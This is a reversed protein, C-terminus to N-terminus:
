ENIGGVAERLPGVVAAPTPRLLFGRYGDDEVDAMQKRFVPLTDTSLLFTRKRGEINTGFYWVSAGTDVWQSPANSNIHEVWADTAEKTAEIRDVGHARMHAFLRQLWTVQVEIYRPLNGGVSQPGGVFILNPFGATQLGLYTRPGDAWAEKLTGGNTGRIDIRNFSGVVADFGTAFVIMDFQYKREATELGDEVYRLIPEELLSILEVNDRNYAEYYDTEGPPRKQAYGHDRPILLEATRPDSVRERIKDAIFKAVIENATPDTMVDAFNGHSLTSGSREWLRELIANVDDADHDHISGPLNSHMFGTKTNSVLEHLEDYSARIEEMREPSIPKNNLPTAWNPTRQFVTLHQAEAAIVPILQVGSAGTGIVAVRKRNFEAPETPWTATHYWEGRYADLGPTKPFNPASLIGVALALFTATYTRGGDTIVNWRNTVGDWEAASVRTNLDIHQRLDLEDVVYNMYSEIEPQGAFESTWTWNALIEKSFFWQYTYSESDFRCEPYRNWWWTGGVGGGAELLRVSYGESLLAHLLGIGSMGAGVIIVDAECSAAFDSPKRL